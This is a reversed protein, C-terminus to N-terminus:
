AGTKKARSKGAQKSSAKVSSKANSKPSAKGQAEKAASKARSTSKGASGSKTQNGASNGASDKSDASNAKKSQQLSAKLAGMLDIVNTKKEEPAFKVEKGEMKSEIASMLRERYEDEYKDPEFKSTLQEILMKAMELERDDVKSM